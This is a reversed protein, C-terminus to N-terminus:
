SEAETGALARVLAGASLEAGALEAVIRRARVVLVRDVAELTEEPDSAAFLVAKGRAAFGRLLRTIEAKAGVDIGRMPEDLLLVAPGTALWRALIAKQQNGGSLAALPQDLSQAVIAVAEALARARARERGRRRLWGGTAVSRLLLNDRVSLGPFVGDLKRDEPAFALGARVAGAPHRLRVPRGGVLLTGGSAPPDAFLTRLLESRGAGLLGALAVVEGGRLALSVAELAPPRALARAELIVPGAGEAPGRGAATAAAPVLERGLMGAVWEARPAAGRAHVAVVAGDRLVTVRDCLQEVQDLFHSVFLVARGQAALRRALALVREAEHRDLSSTPEDLVLVRASRHAARLLCVMQQVAVTCAGAACRPDLALGAAGLIREAEGHARRWDVRWGRRPLAGLFLNEALSLQPVLQVEQHIAAIGQRLADQVDRLVLPRGDLVLTGADPRHVGTLVKVLTSKGAGNEGILGHVEGARLELDVGRLAAHAGFRKGLGLAALLAPPASGAGDADRM